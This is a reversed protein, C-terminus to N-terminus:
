VVVVSLLSYIPSLLHPIDKAFNPEEVKKKVSTAEESKQIHFERGMLNALQELNFLIRKKVATTETFLWHHSDLCEEGAANDIFIMCAPCADADRAMRVDRCLSLTSSLSIAATSLAPTPIESWKDPMHGTTEIKAITLVTEHIEDFIPKWKAYDRECILILHQMECSPYDDSMKERLVVQGDEGKLYLIYIRKRKEEDTRGSPYSYQFYSGLSTYKADKPNYSPPPKSLWSDSIDQSPLKYDTASDM